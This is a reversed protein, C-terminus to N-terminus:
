DDQSRRKKKAYVEGVDDLEGRNLQSSSRKGLIENLGNQKSAGLGYDMQILRTWKLKTTNNGGIPGSKIIEGEIILEEHAAPDELMLKMNNPLKNEM